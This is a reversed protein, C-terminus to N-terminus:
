ADEASIRGSAHRQHWPTNVGSNTAGSMPLRVLRPLTKGGKRARNTEAGSFHSMRDSSLMFELGAAAKFKKGDPITAM